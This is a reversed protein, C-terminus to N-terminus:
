LSPFAATKLIRFLDLGPGVLPLGVLLFRPRRFFIGRPRHTSGFRRAIAHSEGTSYNHSQSKM